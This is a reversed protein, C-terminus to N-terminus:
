TRKVLGLFSLRCDHLEGEEEDGGQGAQAEGAGQCFGGAGPVRITTARAIGASAVLTHGDLALNSLDLPLNM